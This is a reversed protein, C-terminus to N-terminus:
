KSIERVGLIRDRLALKEAQTFGAIIQAATKGAFKLKPHEGIGQCSRVYSDEIIKGGLIFIEMPEYNRAPIGISEVLAFWQGLSV